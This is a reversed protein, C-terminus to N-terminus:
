VTATANPGLELNGAVVGGGNTNWRNLNTTNVLQYSIDVPPPDPRTYAVTFNGNANRGYTFIGNTWKALPNLGLAYKLLNPLGDGAPSATEGTVFSNGANAGFNALRWSNWPTDAIVVNANTLSGPLYGAGAVLTLSFTKAGVPQANTLPLIVLNTSIMGASLNIAAPLSVYDLGAVATGGYGLNVTVSVNTNGTRYLVVAGGQPGYRSAQGDAAWLSVVPLNYIFEVADAIVYGTTGGNRIRVFGNTGANFNTALLFVWQGGQTTQNVYVTNTGGAFGIDIPANTARNANATWRAYVQYGGTIPLTPQYTVSAAGKNTNGDHLYDPGYFGTSSASSTWTGTISVGGADTNDLFIMTAANALINTGLNQGDRLLQAQLRAVNVSQVPVGDDIALCAATAAAQSLIMLTPEMRLSCFAIHSASLSWPVLLNSCENTKPVLARYPVPYPVTIDGRATGENVIIGNTLIRQCYHSDTFYGGMGVVDTVPVQNFINAQTMVYDSVMRRAERVYLEWPWGGNDVFEDKCPGWASMSTRVAAPVRPDTALFYFFGQEYNKHDAWIQQRRAAGAEAYAASGGVYDTSVPGSNNIDMKSNPLPTGLTMLNNLTLSPNAQLYRAVLEYQAANYNPPAALALRNSAVQTFCMRFNYTQVAMDASGAPSLSNSQILPILGSAPVGPTLYPSVAAGFSTDPPRVGALSEGYQAAAERGITYSVGAAALLDGTYSTDIFERATFIIGATTTLARIQTGAKNVSVLSQNPYLQVGAEALLDNFVAEAVHPEFEYNVNAGYKANIRAYFDGAMGQIYGTGVHGIDTWGLGSSTMGGYHNKDHILAVRKGLRAAKVAAIVGGSTGGYVCVDVNVEQTARM